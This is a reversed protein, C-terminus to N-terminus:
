IWSRLPNQVTVASNVIKEKPLFHIISNELSDPEIPKTLYDDFGAALYTERMGTIANATLCIKPTDANPNDPLDQLEQLAQIGDKNPMMHDLFIIDYKKRSALEICGFNRQRIYLVSFKLYIIRVLRYGRKM